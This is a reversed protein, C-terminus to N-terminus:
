NVWGEFVATLEAAPIGVLSERVGELLEFLEM